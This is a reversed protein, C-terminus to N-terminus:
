LLPLFFIICLWFILIHETQQCVSDWVCVIQIFNSKPKQVYQPLSRSANVICLQPDKMLIVFKNELSLRSQQAVMLLQDKTNTPM